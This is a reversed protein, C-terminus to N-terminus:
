SRSRAKARPPNGISRDPNLIRYLVHDRLPNSEEIKPHEFEKIKSMGIKIMVKESRTNLVSTFSYVEGFGLSKFGLDLCGRAGETAYGQGWATKDLRWGIEICPTFDSPFDTYNFGIFGIFRSLDKVEVAWLGYGRERIGKEIRDVFADSEVADLPKLFYRMIDPDANMRSFPIRDEQRWTRLILRPTELVIDIM